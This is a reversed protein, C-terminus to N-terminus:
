SQGDPQRMKNIWGLITVYTDYRGQDYGLYHQDSSKSNQDLLNNAADQIQKVLEDIM